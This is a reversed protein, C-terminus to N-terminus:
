PTEYTKWCVAIRNYVKGNRERLIELNDGFYFKNM